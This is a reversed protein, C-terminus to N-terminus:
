NKEEFLYLPLLNWLKQLGAELTKLVASDREQQRLELKSELDLIYDRLLSHERLNAALTFYIM